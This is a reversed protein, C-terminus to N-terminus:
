PSPTWRTGSCASWSRAPCSTSTSSTSGASIRPSIAASPRASRPRSRRRCRSCRLASRSSQRAAAAHHHAHLGDPDARRRHFRAGRAARDDAAPGAGVRLGGVAGPVPGRQHPSLHPDLVGAGALGLAPDGRDRRDSLLDLDLRRRRHRRRDRGPHRRALCQRDPHEAGGHLRRADRRDRRDLDQRFRCAHRARGSRSHQRRLRREVTPQLTSM